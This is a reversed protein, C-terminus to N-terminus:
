DCKWLLAEQRESYPVRLLLTIAKRWDIQTTVSGERDMSWCSPYVVYFNQEVSVALPNITRRIKMMLISNNNEWVDSLM